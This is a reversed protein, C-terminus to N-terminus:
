IKTNNKIGVSDDLKYRLPEKHKQDYVDKNCKETCFIKAKHIWGLILKM